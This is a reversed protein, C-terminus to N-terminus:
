VEGSLGPCTVGRLHPIADIELHEFAERGNVAVNDAAPDVIVAIKEIGTVFFPPEFTDRLNKFDVADVIEM